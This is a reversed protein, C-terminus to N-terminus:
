AVVPASSADVHWLAIEAARRAVLGNLTVGNCLVWSKLENVAGDYDLQNLKVLLTSHLLRGAGENFTFDVLADFQGQTLPVTVFTNVATVAERTDARLLSMAESPTIGAAFDENSRIKHGWGITWYGHSDQYPFLRLSESNEILRLGDDSVDMM